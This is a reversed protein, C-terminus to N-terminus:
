LLRTKIGVKKYLAWSQPFGQPSSRSFSRVTCSSAGSQTRWDRNGVSLPVPSSICGLKRGILSSHFLCLSFNHIKLMQSLTNFQYNTAYNPRFLHKCKLSELLRLPYNTWLGWLMLQLNTKCVQLATHVHAQHRSCKLSVLEFRRKSKYLKEERSGMKCWVAATGHRVHQCPLWTIIHLM